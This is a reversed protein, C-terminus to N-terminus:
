FIQFSIQFLIQFSIKFLKVSISSECDVVLEVPFGFKKFVNVMRGAKAVRNEKYRDKSKPLKLQSVMLKLKQM